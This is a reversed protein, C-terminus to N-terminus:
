GQRARFSERTRPCVLVWGAGPARPLQFSVVQRSRWQTSDERARREDGGQCEYRARDGGL